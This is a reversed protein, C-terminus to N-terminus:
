QVKGCEKCVYNWEAYGPGCVGNNNMPRTEGQCWRCKPRPKPQNMKNISESVAKEYAEIQEKPVPTANKYFDKWFEDSDYLKNM